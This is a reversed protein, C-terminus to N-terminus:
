GLISRYGDDVMRRAFSLMRQVRLRLFDSRGNWEERVLAEGYIVTAIDRQSAGAELGDYAQLARAWKPATPQPPFLSKPFRGLRHLASLRSLTLLKADVSQFGEVQYRLRVPGNTLTGGRVDLQIERVGDSLVLLENGNEDMALDALKEFRAIDFADVNSRPVPEAQVVVVSPDIDARWFLRVDLDGDSKHGPRVFVGESFAQQPRRRRTPRHGFHSPAGCHRACQLRRGDPIKSQAKAVALGLAPAGFASVRPLPGFKEM